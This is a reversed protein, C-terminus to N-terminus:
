SLIIITAGALMILTAFMKTILDKEKFVNVGLLLSVITSLQFLALAYSVNMKLFVYNTTYQMLAVLLVLEIQTKINETRIRFSHKSFILFLASFILGSIVWYLFTSNIDTLNIVKKIFVAEIGLLILAIFRYLLAKSYFLKTKLLVLTGIIILFIGFLEFIQPYEGLVIYGFIIAIIPKYSNVPAISSLEGCSLAKIIFFNGLAGLSGMILIFFLIEKSFVPNPCIFFAIISLGLYTYFNVVSSYEGKQTLLKQFVNVYSNSFIRILLAIILSLM